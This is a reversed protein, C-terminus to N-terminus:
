WSSLCSSTTSSKESELIDGSGLDYEEEDEETADGDSDYEAEAAGRRRPPGRPPRPRPVTMRVWKHSFRVLADSGTISDWLLGQLLSLRTLADAQLRTLYLAFRPAHQGLATEAARCQRFLGDWRQVVAQWAAVPPDGILVAVQGGSGEWLKRSFVIAAAAAPTGAGTAADMAGVLGLGLVARALELADEEPAGLNAAWRILYEVYPQVLGVDPGSALSGRPARGGGGGADEGGEPASAGAAAAAAAERRSARSKARQAQVRDANRGGLARAVLGDVYAALSLVQFGGAERPALSLSYAQTFRILHVMTHRMFWASRPPPEEDGAGGVVYGGAGGDRPTVLLGELRAGVVDYKGRGKNLSVYITTPMKLRAIALAYAVGLLDVM